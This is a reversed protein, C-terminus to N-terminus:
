ELLYVSGKQRVPPNGKKEYEVEYLYVGPPLPRNKLTGDWPNRPDQSTFVEQGYRNYIRIQYRDLDFNVGQPRFERNIGNPSFANPFFLAPVKNICKIPSRSKLFQSPLLPDNNQHETVLVFCFSDTQRLSSDYIVPVSFDLVDQTKQEIGNPLVEYLTHSIITSTPPLVPPSLEISLDSAEDFTLQIESAMLEESNFTNMCIDESQLFLQEKHFSPNLLLQNDNSLPALVDINQMTNSGLSLVNATTLVANMNWLWSFILDNNTNFSLNYSLLYEQNFFQHYFCQQNSESKQGSSLHTLRVFLCYDQEPMLTDLLVNADQDGTFVLQDVGTGLHDISIVEVTYGDNLWVQYPTYNLVVKNSCSDNELDMIVTNHFDSFVSENGCGDAVTLTYRQVQSLDPSPDYFFTDTTRGIPLTGSPTKKYLVYESFNPHDLPSWEIRIDVNNEITTRLIDTGPLFDNTLTDSQLTPEGPCNALSEIYYFYDDPTNHVYYGQMPDNIADLLTYPGDFNSSFFIRYGLHGNCSITSPTWILSDSSICLFDPAPIQAQLPQDGLGLFLCLFSVKLYNFVMSRNLLMRKM